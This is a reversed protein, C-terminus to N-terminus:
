GLRLGIQRALMAIGMAKIQLKLLSRSYIGFREIEFQPAQGLRKPIVAFAAEFGATKILEITEHNYEGGPYAFYRIPKGLLDSLARRGDLIEQAQMDLPLQDLYPHNITHGGIEILNSKGAEILQEHTMGEYLATACPPVPYTKALKKCFGVPDGSAKANEALTSRALRCQELKQLPFTQQNVEVMSYCKEFCLTNLYSFWLLERNELHGTSVFFAAPIRNEKLFPQVHQFTIRFGDDFTLAVNGRKNGDAPTNALYEPLSVLRYHKSLWLIHNKFATLTIIPSMSWQSAVAGDPYVVHYLLIM